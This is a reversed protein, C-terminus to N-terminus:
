QLRELEALAEAAEQAAALLDRAHGVDRTEEARRAFATVSRALSARAEDLDADPRTAPVSPEGRADSRDSRAQGPPTPEARARDADADVTPTEQADGAARDAAPQGGAQREGGVSPQGGADAQQNGPQQSEAQQQGGGAQQQDGQHGGGQHGGGQQGGAEGDGVDCVSCFEQGDYRFIPNGCDDCHTNTMTAGKLLLESMRQTTERDAKEQEYKERLREKEAERDFGGDGGDTDSMDPDLRERKFLVAPALPFQESSVPYRQLCPDDTEDPAHNSRRSFWSVALRVVSSLRL